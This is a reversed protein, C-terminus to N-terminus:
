VQPDSVLDNPEGEEDSVVDTSKIDVQQQQPQQQSASFGQSDGELDAVLTEYPFFGAPPVPVLHSQGATSGNSGVNPHRDLSVALTSEETSHFVCPRGIEIGDFGFKERLLMWANAGLLFFDVGHKLDRRIPCSDPSSHQKKSSKSNSSASKNVSNINSEGNGAGEEDDSSSVAHDWELLESNQIIGIKERWKNAEDDGGSASDNTNSSTSAMMTQRAGLMPHAKLMWAAPILFFTLEKLSSPVKKSAMANLVQRTDEEQLGILLNLLLLVTLFLIVLCALARFLYCRGWM